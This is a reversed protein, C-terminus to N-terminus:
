IGGGDIINWGDNNIINTRATEAAGGTNYKSKGFHMRAAAGPQLTLADWNILTQNYTPTPVTVDFM